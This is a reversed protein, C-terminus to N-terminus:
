SHMYSATIQAERRVATGLSHAFAVVIWFPLAILSGAALVGSEFVGEVAGGVIGALLVTAFASHPGPRHAVRWATIMGSSVLGVLIVLGPWGLDVAAELYSNHTRGLVTAGFQQQIEPFLDPTTGFGHGRLPAANILPIAESWVVTRGSGSGLEFFGEGHGSTQSRPTVGLAPFIFAAAALAVIGVVLIRRKTRGQGGFGSALFAIAVGAVSAITGGRSGTLALAAALALTSAILTNRRGGAPEQTSMIVLAPLIPAIWFGLANPNSLLGLFRANADFATAAEALGAAVGAVTFAAATVGSWRLIARADQEDRCNLPVAVLAATGLLALSIAKPWSESPDVSWGISMTAFLVLVGFAVIFPVSVPLHRERSVLWPVITAAIAALMAFKVPFALSVLPLTSMGWALALTALPVLVTLRRAVILWGIGLAVIISVALLPQEASSRGLMFAISGVVVWALAAWLDTPRSRARALM